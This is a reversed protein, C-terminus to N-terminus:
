KIMSEVDVENIKREIFAVEKIQYSVHDAIKSLLASVEDPAKEYEALAHIYRYIDPLDAETAQRVILSM